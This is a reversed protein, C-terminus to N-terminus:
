QRRQPSTQKRPQESLGVGVKQKQSRQEAAAHRPSSALEVQGNSALSLDDVIMVYDFLAIVVPSKDNLNALTPLVNLRYPTSEWCQTKHQINM